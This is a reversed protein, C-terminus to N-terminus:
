PQHPLEGPSLAGEDIGPAEGGGSYPPEIQGGGGSYPPEIPGAGGVIAQFGPSQIQQNLHLQQMDIGGPQNPMGALITALPLPQFAGGTSGLTNALLNDMDQLQSADPTNPLTLILPTRDTPLQNGSGPNVQSMLEQASLSAARQILQLYNAVTAADPERGLLRRLQELAMQEPSQGRGNPAGGSSPVPAPVADPHQLAQIPAYPEPPLPDTPTGIRNGGESDNDMSKSIPTRLAPTAARTEIPNLGSAPPQTPWMIPVSGARLSSIVQPNASPIDTFQGSAIQQRLANVLEPRSSGAPMDNWSASLPLESNDLGLARALTIAFDQRSQGSTAGSVGSDAMASNQGLTSPANGGDPNGLLQLPTAARQWSQAQSLIAAADIVPPRAGEFVDGQRPLEQLIQQSAQAVPSSARFGQADPTSNLGNSSPSPTQAIPTSAVPEPSQNANPPQVAPQASNARQAELTAKLKERQAALAQEDLPSNNSPSALKAAEVEAKRADLLARQEDAVRRQEEGLQANADPAFSAASRLISQRQEPTLNVNLGELAAEMSKLLNQAIEEASAPSQSQSPQGNLLALNEDRIAQLAAVLNTIQELEDGDRFVDLLIQQTPMVPAVTNQRAAEEAERQQRIIENRDSESLAEPTSPAGARVGLTSRGTQPDTYVFFNTANAQAGIVGGLIAVAVAVKHRQWVNLTSFKM